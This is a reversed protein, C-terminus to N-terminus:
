RAGGGTGAGVQTDTMADTVTTLVEAVRTPDPAPCYKLLSTITRASTLGAAHLLDALPVPACMAAVLWTNRLRSGRVEVTADPDATKARRTIIGTFNHRDTVRGVVLDQPTKGTAAHLELARRVLPEYTRRVPVTRGQRGSPSTSDPVTVQLFSAAGTGTAADAAPHEAIHETIHEARLDRLDRSDLGAGLGLGIIFCMDRTLALNPQHAAIRAFRACEADTYPAPLAHHELRAPAQAPNLERVIRRLLSRVTAKSRDSWSCATLFGEIAGPQFLDDVQLEVRGDSSGDSSSDSSSDSSGAPAGTNRTAHWHLFLAVYSCATRAVPVNSPQTAYVLGIGLDRNATWTARTALNPEFATIADRIDGAIDDGDPLTWAPPALFAEAAEARAAAARAHALAARRSMPKAPRSPSAAASTRAPQLGARQDRATGTTDATTAPANLTNEATGGNTSPGTLDLLTRRAAPRLTGGAGPRATAGCDPIVGPGPGTVGTDALARPGPHHAPGRLDRWVARLPDPGAGPRLTARAALVHAVPLDLEVARRVFPDVRVPDRTVRVKPGAHGLLRAFVLLTDRRTAVTRPALGTVRALHANVVPVTLLRHLDPAGTAPTWVRPDRLYQVLTSAYLRAQAVSGPTARHALDRVPGAALAWVDAPMSRPTFQALYAEVDEPLRPVPQLTTRHPM